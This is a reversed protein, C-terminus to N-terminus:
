PNGLTAAALFVPSAPARLYFPETALPYHGTRVLENAAFLYARADGFRLTSFGVVAIAALRVVLALLFILVCARRGLRPVGGGTVPGTMFIKGGQARDNSLFDPSRLM